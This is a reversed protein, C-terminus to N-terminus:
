YSTIMLGSYQCISRVNLYIILQLHLKKFDIEEVLVIVFVTLDMVEASCQWKRIVSNSTKKEPESSKLSSM